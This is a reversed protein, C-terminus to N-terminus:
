ERETLHLLLGDLLRIATLTPAVKRMWRRLADPESLSFTVKGIEDCYETQWALNAYDDSIQVTLDGDLWCLVAGFGIFMGEEEPCYQATTRTSELAAALEGARQVYPCPYEATLRVLEAHTLRPRNYDLAWPPFAAEITARTIMDNAMAERAEKDDGCDEDLALAEDHEGRWYLYSAEDLAMSPTFLPYVHAGKREMIDLVTSGLTPVCQELYDLGAGVGWHCVSTEKWIMELSEPAEPEENNLPSACHQRVEGTVPQLEFLPAFCQVDGIHKALWIALTRECVDYFSGNTPGRNRTTIARADILYQALRAAATVARALAADDFPPPLQALLGNIRVLSSRLTESVETRRHAIDARQVQLEAIEIQDNTGAAAPKNDLIEALQTEASVLSDKAAAVDRQRAALQQEWSLRAETRCRKAKANKLASTIDTGDALAADISRVESKLNRRAHDLRSITAAASPILPQAARADVLLKCQQQMAMGACPVEATLGFRRRLDQEALVAQGAERDIAALQEQKLAAQAKLKEYQLADHQLQELRQNRLEYVPQLRHLRRVARDVHRGNHLTRKLSTIQSRLSAISTERQAERQSARQRLRVLAGHLAVEQKEIEAQASDANRLLCQRDQELQDRRANHVAHMDRQATMTALETRRAERHEIAIRKNERATTLLRDTDGQADLSAAVKDYETQLGARSQRLSLLGSRLLRLTENAQESIAQIQALGLLDALLSKIEGNRYTAIQRRNQASFATTLFTSCSGAIGEVCRSYTEMRGDSLTGDPLRVPHWRGERHEHLYAETKRRGQDRIVLQSRYLVGDLEWTLEKLNEPLYVEDYYSFAGLGDGGAKSPMVPYPTMNDLITSKGRGNRGTIAVLKAGDALEAFNLTITERGLGDRIGKFGTLTLSIPIM